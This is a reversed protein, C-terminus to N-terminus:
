DADKDANQPDLLYGASITPQWTTGTLNTTIRGGSYNNDKVMQGVISFTAM